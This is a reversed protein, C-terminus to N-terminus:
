IAGTAPTGPMAKERGADENGDTPGDLSYGAPARPRDRDVDQDRDRGKEALGRHEFVREILSPRGGLPVAVIGILLIAALAAIMLPLSRKGTPSFKM